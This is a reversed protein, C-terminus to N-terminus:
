IRWHKTVTDKGLTGSRINPHIKFSYQRTRFNVLHIDSPGKALLNWLYLSSCALLSCPPDLDASRCTCHSRRSEPFHLEKQDLLGELFSTIPPWIKDRHLCILLDAPWCQALPPQHQARLVVEGVQVGRGCCALVGGGRGGQFWAPNSQFKDGLFKASGVELWAPSQSFWGHFPSALHIKKPLGEFKLLVWSTKGLQCYEVVSLVWFHEITCRTSLLLYSYLFYMYISEFTCLTRLLEGPVSFFVWYEFCDIWTSKDTIYLWFCTDVGFLLRALRQWDSSLDTTLKGEKINTNM